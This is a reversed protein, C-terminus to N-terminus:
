LVNELINPVDEPNTIIQTEGSITINFINRIIPWELKFFVVVQYYASDYMGVGAYVSNATMTSNSTTVNKAVCYNTKTGYGQHGSLSYANWMKGDNPCTGSSSYGMGSLFTNMEDLAEQTLGHYHEIVTVLEDKIRFCRSYTTTVSVYTTFLAIFAIVIIYLGMGSIADKM